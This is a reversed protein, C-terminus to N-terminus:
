SPQEVGKRRFVAYLPRLTLILEFGAAVAALGSVLCIILSAFRIRPNQMAWDRLANKIEVIRGRYIAKGGRVWVRSASFGKAGKRLLLGLQKDAEVPASKLWSLADKGGIQVSAAAMDPSKASWRAVAKLDDATEVHKMLTPLTGPPAHSIVGGMDTFFIHVQKTDKTKIARKFIKELFEAFRESLAGIKRLGKSVSLIPRATIGGATSTPEPVWAAVTAMLGVTSLTIMWPDTKEGYLAHKGQIALDRIDGVFFFDTVLAGVTAEPSDANGTIAGYLAEKARRAYSTREAELEPILSRIEAGHPMGPLLAVAKALSEAEGIRGAGQLERIAPLYDFDPLTSTSSEKWVSWSLLTLAILIALLVGRLVLRRIM